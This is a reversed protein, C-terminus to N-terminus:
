ITININVKHHDLIEIVAEPNIKEHRQAEENHDVLIFKDEPNINVENINAPVEVGYTNLVYKTEKNIEGSILPRVEQTYNKTKKLLEAYAIASCTADLDPKIHGITYIM